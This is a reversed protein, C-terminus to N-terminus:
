LSGDVWVESGFRVEDFIRIRHVLIEFFRSELGELSLPSTLIAPFGTFRSGYARIPDASHEDSVLSGHAGIQLGQKATGWPQSTSYVAVACLPNIDIALSHDASPPTLIWLRLTPESEYCFYATSVHPEGTAAITALTCLDVAGLIELVSDSASKRDAAGSTASLSTFNIM